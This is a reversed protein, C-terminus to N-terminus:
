LEVGAVTRRPAASLRDRVSSAERIFLANGRIAGLANDFATLSRTFPDYLHHRFGQAELPGRVRTASNETIVAVLSSDRLTREAGAIVEAEYGEVDMKVLRPNRGELVDDLRRASVKRTEAGDSATAVHNLTDQGITFQVSGERAGLAAEVLEVRSEAGNIEVNARL